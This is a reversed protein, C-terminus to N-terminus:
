RMGWSLSGDSGNIGRQLIGISSPSWPILALVHHLSYLGEVVSVVCAAPCSRNLVSMAASIATTMTMATVASPTATVPMKSSGSSTAGKRLTGVGSAVLRRM